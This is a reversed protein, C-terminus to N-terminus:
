TCTVRETARKKEINTTAKRHERYAAQRKSNLTRSLHDTTWRRVDANAACQLDREISAANAERLLAGFAPLLTTLGGKSHQGELQKYCGFCSEIIETSFPLRQGRRLGQEQDKIFTVTQQVLDRSKPGQAHAASLKQFAGSAGQYIGQENAFKVGLSVV